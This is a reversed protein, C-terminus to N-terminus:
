DARCRSNAFAGDIPSAAGGLLSFFFILTAIPADTQRRLSTRQRLLHHAQKADRMTEDVRTRSGSLKSRPANTANLLVLIKARGFLLFRGRIESGSL